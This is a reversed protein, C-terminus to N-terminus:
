GALHLVLDWGPRYDTDPDGAPWVEVQVGPPGYDKTVALAIVQADDAFVVGTMADLAARALKDVDGSRQAIPWTRKRKPASAPKPLGFALNVALPGLLMGGTTAAAGRAETAIAYRWAKLADGGSEKLVPRGKVVFATKSGQTVPLGTVAFRVEPQQASPHRTRCGLLEEATQGFLDVTVM